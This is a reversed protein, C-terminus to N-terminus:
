RLFWQVARKSIEFPIEHGGDFNMYDPKFSDKKLEKVIRESCPIIPLIEDKTGHSIFAKPKGITEKTYVFGPSFAM